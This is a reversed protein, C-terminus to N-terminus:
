LIDNLLAAQTKNRKRKEKKQSCADVHIENLLIM